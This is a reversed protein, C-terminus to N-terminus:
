NEKKKKTRRETKNTGPNKTTYYKLKRKKNEMEKKSEKVAQKIVIELKNGREEFSKKERKKEGVRNIKSLNNKYTEYEEKKLYKETSKAVEM